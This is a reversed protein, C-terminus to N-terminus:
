QVRGAGQRPVATQHYPSVCTNNGCESRVDCLKTGCLKYRQPNYSGGTYPNYAFGANARKGHGCIPGTPPPGGGCTNADICYEGPNCYTTPSCQVSGSPICKDGIDIDGPFCGNAYMCRGGSLCNMGSSCAMGGGCYNQGASICYGDKTPTTGAPCAPKPPAPPPATAATTPKAAPPSASKPLSAKAIQPRQNVNMRCMGAFRSYLRSCDDFAGTQGTTGTIQQGVPGMRNERRKCEDANHQMETCFAEDFGGKPSTGPPVFGRQLLPGLASLFGTPDTNADKGDAQGLAAL